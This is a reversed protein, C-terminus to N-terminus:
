VEKKTLSFVLKSLGIVAILNPIAMMGNLTDSVEWVATVTGVSGALAIFAYFAKYLTHLSSRSGTLYAMCEIGYYSWGLLTTLAFVTIALTIFIGGSSGLYVSFAASTLAAGDLSGAGNALGSMVIVIATVSCLVITDVFVEFIGWAGQRVASEADSAAHAIPASGLGAENSFIGRSFGFRASRAIAYGYIGGGASKLSFASKLISHLARPFESINLLIILIGAGLYIFSMFPVLKEAVGSIRRIGGLIVFSAVAMILAGTILPPVRFTNQMACAISNAQAMNGMGFSAIMCFFAFLRALWRCKLGKEIYYMPGGYHMGNKDTQRFRVALVVEAYKVMMGFFASVWMWFVAGEGGAVIATAVGVINGTGITGALATSVAQFPSISGAKNKKEGKRLLTGVTYRFIFPIHTLQFFGTKVTFFVGTSFLFLLMPPGWVFGNLKRNFELLM